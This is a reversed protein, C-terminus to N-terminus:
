RIRADMIAKALDQDAIALIEAALLAANKGNDIGVTAVPVGPPMQAMSLLADMGNLKVDKPCGIVPRPTLSAIVGPLAASLGAVAIFVKAESATVIEEVKKPTRHASAVHSEYEIGFRELAAEAKKVIDGDSTSGAIICIDAMEVM